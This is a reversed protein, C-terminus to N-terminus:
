WDEVDLDDLYDDDDEDLYVDIQDHISEALSLFGGRVYTSLSDFNVDLKDLDTLNERCWQHITVALARLLIDYRDDPIKSLDNM